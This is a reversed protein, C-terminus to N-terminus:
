LRDILDAICGDEVACLSEQCLKKIELHANQPCFSRIGPLTLMEYDNFYDGVVAVKERELGLHTILHEVGWGKSVTQPIVEVFFECSSTITVEKVQMSELWIIFDLREKPQVKFVFKLWPEAIQNLPMYNVPYPSDQETNAGVDYRNEGGWVFARLEPRIKIVTEIMRRADKPLQSVAIPENIQYDYILAGNLLICPANVSVKKVLERCTSIGRGTALAFLGGQSVYRNIAAVNNQPIVRFEPMLTGDVDSFIATGQYRGM